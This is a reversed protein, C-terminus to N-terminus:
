GLKGLLRYDERYNRKSTESLRHYIWWTRTELAFCVVSSIGSYLMAGVNATAYVWPEDCSMYYVGPEDSPAFHTQCLMRPVTGPLPLVMLVALIVYRKQRCFSRWSSTPMAIMVYRNIAIVCHAVTQSHLFYTLSAIGIGFAPSEAVEKSYVGIRPVRYFVNLTAYALLDQCSQYIYIWYFGTTFAMNRRRNERIVCALVSIHFLLFPAEGVIRIYTAFAEPEITM